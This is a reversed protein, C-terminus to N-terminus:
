QSCFGSQAYGASLYCHRSNDRGSMIPFFKPDYRLIATCGNPYKKSPFEKMTLEIELGALAVAM